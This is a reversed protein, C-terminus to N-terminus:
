GGVATRVLRRVMLYEDFSEDGVKLVSPDTGYTSFGMKEYLRVAPHNSTVVSLHVQELDSVSEARRLLEEILAQAVGQGRCEPAVYMGWLMGRHRTKGTENVALGATGILDGSKSVAALIFGGLEAQARVRELIQEDSRRKFNDPTEGFSEPHESLGRLRLERYPAISEPGVAIVRDFQVRQSESFSDSM